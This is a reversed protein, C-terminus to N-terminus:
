HRTEKKKALTLTAIHQVNEICGKPICNTRERKGHFGIKHSFGSADSRIFHFENNPLYLYCGLLFNMEEIPGSEYYKYDFGLTKLDSEIYDMFNYQNHFTKNHTLQYRDFNSINGPIMIAQQSFGNFSHDIALAYGYCNTHNTEWLNFSRPYINIQINQKIIRLIENYNDKSLYEFKM